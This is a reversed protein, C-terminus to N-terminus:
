LRFNVASALLRWLKTAAGHCSGVNRQNYHEFVPTYDSFNAPIPGRGVNDRRISKIEAPTLAPHRSMKEMEPLRAAIRAKAYSSVCWANFM